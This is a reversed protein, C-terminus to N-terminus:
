RSTQRSKFTSLWGEDPDANTYHMKGDVCLVAACHAPTSAADVFMKCPRAKSPQWTRLESVGFDLVHWWWWLAAVLEQGIHASRAHCQAFLPRIMARGLKRFTHCCAFSLRGALKRAIPAELKKQELATLL